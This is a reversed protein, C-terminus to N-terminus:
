VTCSKQNWVPNKLFLGSAIVSENHRIKYGGSAGGSRRYTNTHNTTLLYFAKEVRKRGGESVVYKVARNVRRTHNLQQNWM